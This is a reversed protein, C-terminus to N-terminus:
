GQMWSSNKWLHFNLLFDLSNLTFRTESPEQQMSKSTQHLGAHFLMTRMLRSTSLLTTCLIIDVDVYLLLSSYNTEYWPQLNQGIM